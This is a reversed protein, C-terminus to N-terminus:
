KVAEVISFLPSHTSIVKSFRLGGKEILAMWEKENREQGGTMTLMNIDMLKGPHPANGEPIVSEFILAKAGPKMTKSLTSLIQLSQLDNWDHLVMKLLYADCDEPVSEFFSGAIFRCRDSLGASELQRAAQTELYAEDFVIGRANQASNLVGTLFTGNGGGIDAITNFQSFDYAPVINMLVAQTLGSMAKSFNVGDEPHTEYYKWVPMGHLHDFAIEGTRVSYLLEGWAGYHDGLQAIAMAKMSGPVDGRLTNGIPTLSFEGKENESFVGASALARLLRYLARPHTQTETALAQATKSKTALLDAINLKSATYICCSTWFATIMQMMQAPPPPGQTATETKTLEPASTPNM